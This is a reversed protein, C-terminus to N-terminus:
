VLVYYYIVSVDVELRFHMNIIDALQPTNAKMRKLQILKRNM